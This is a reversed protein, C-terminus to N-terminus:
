MNAESENKRRQTFLFDISKSSRGDAAAKMMMMMETCYAQVCEVCESWKHERARSLLNQGLKLHRKLLRILGAAQRRASGSENGEEGFHLRYVDTLAIRQEELEKSVELLQLNFIFRNIIHILLHIHYELARKFESLSLRLNDLNKRQRERLKSTESNKHLMSGAKEILLEALLRFNELSLRTLGLIQTETSKFQKLKCEDVEGSGILNYRFSLTLNIDRFRWLKGLGELLEQKSEYNLENLKLRSNIEDFDTLKENTETKEIQRLTQDFQFYSEITEIAAQKVRSIPHFNPEYTMSFYDSFVSFASNSANGVACLGVGIYLLLNMFFDSDINSDLEGHSVHDRFRPGELYEFLEFICYILMENDILNMIKNNGSSFDLLENMTYYFEDVRARQCDFKEAFKPRLSTADVEFNNALSFLKRILHEIQPLLLVARDFSSLKETSYVFLWLPRRVDDILKSEKIIELCNQLHEARFQCLLRYNNADVKIGNLSFKQRSKLEIVGHKTKVELEHSLRSIIALLLYIFNEDYESPNLFGHWCLNRLNLSQPSFVLLKVLNITSQNFVQLFIPHNVLDKLLFPVKSANYNCLSYFINGMCREFIPFINLYVFELRFSDLVNDNSMASILKLNSAINSDFQALEDQLFYVAHKRSEFNNIVHEKIGNLHKALNRYTHKFDIKLDMHNEFVFLEAIFDVDLICDESKLWIRDDFKEGTECDAASEIIEQIQKSLYTELNVNLLSEAEFLLSKDFKDSMISFEVTKIM